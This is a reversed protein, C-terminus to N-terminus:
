EFVFVLFKCAPLNRVATGLWSLLGVYQFKQDFNSILRAVWAVGVLSFQTPAGSVTTWFPKQLANDCTYAYKREIDETPKSIGLWASLGPTLCTPICTRPVEWTAKHLKHMWRSIFLTKAHVKNSVSPIQMHECPYLTPKCTSTNPKNNQVRSLLTNPQINYKQKLAKTLRQKYRNPELVTNKRMNYLTQTCETNEDLKTNTIHVKWYHTHKYRLKNRERRQGM